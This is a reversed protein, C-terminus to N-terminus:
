RRRKARRRRRRRRRRRVRKPAPETDTDTTRPVSGEGSPLAGSEGSVAADSETDGMQDPADQTPAQPEPVEAALSDVFRAETLSFPRSHTTTGDADTAWVSVVAPLGAWIYRHSIPMFLSAPDSASVTRTKITNGAATNDPHCNVVAYRAVPVTGDTPPRWRLVAYFMEGSVRHSDPEIDIDTVTGPSSALNAAIDAALQERRASVRLHADLFGMRVQLPLYYWDDPNLRLMAGTNRGDTLYHADYWEDDLSAWDAPWGYREAVRLWVQTETTM